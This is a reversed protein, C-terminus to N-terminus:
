VGHAFAPADKITRREILREMHPHLQILDRALYPSHHDNIRFGYDDKEWTMAAEWRARHVLARTSFRRGRKLCDLALRELLAFATPNDKKWVVYRRARENHHLEYADFLGPSTMNILGLGEEIIHREVFLHPAM